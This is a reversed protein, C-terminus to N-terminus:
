TKGSTYITWPLKHGCYKRERHNAETVLLYCASCYQGTNPLNFYYFTINFSFTQVASLHWQKSRLISGRTDIYGCFPTFILIPLQINYIFTSDPLLCVSFQRSFERSLMKMKAFLDTSAIKLLHHLLQITLMNRM